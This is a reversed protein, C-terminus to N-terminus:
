ANADAVGEPRPSASRDSTIEIPASPLPMWHTVGSIQYHCESEASEDVWQEKMYFVDHAEDYEDDVDGEFYSSELTRAKCHWGMTIAPKGHHTTYVILVRQQTRPLRECVPIWTVPEQAKLADLEARLREFAGIVEDVAGQAILRKLTSENM